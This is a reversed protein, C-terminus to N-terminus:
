EEDKRIGLLYLKVTYPSFAKQQGGDLIEGSVTVGDALENIPLYADHLRINNSHTFAAVEVGGGRSDLINENGIKIAVTTNHLKDKETCGFAVGYVSSMEVSSPFDFRVRGGSRDVDVDLTQFFTKERIM